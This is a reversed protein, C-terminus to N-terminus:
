DARIGAQRIIAGLREIDDRVRQQFQAPGEVTPILGMSLLRDRTAPVAAAQRLADAWQEMVPQPTGAPACLGFWGGVVFGPFIESMRPVEPFAPSGVADTFALLRLQGGQVGSIVDALNTALVDIRGAAVDMAAPAGGRYPVHVMDIGAALKIAEGGLHQLTGAGTSAYNLRGPNQRGYAVLEQVTRFPRDPPVVVVYNALVMNAAPILDRVPDVPLRAGPLVPLMAMQGQACLLMTHGDPQSRAVVEMAITGAAGTRNEVLIRQGLTQATADAIIRSVIDCSGGPAFGCIIRIDRDPFAAETRGGIFLAAATATAFLLSKLM